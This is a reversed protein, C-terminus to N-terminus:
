DFKVVTPKHGKGTKPSKKEARRKQATMKKKEEKSYSSATKPTEKSIKKKPRCKPYGKSDAKERGCPPHKGGVKRSVDVWKEKFWRRLDESLIEESIILKM